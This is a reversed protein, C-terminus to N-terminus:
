WEYPTAGPYRYLLWEAFVVDAVKEQHRDRITQRVVPDQYLRLCAQCRHAYMDEWRLDPNHTTAWALIREPGEVRIWRKLFDEGAIKDAQPLPVDRINGM